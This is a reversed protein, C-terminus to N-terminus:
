TGSAPGARRWRGVFRRPVRTRSDLERAEQGPPQPPRDIQALQRSEFLFHPNSNVPRQVQQERLVEHLKQRHAAGRDGRRFSLGVVLQLGLGDTGIYPSTPPTKLGRQRGPRFARRWPGRYPALSRRRSARSIAGLSVVVVGLSAILIVMQRADLAPEPAVSVVLQIGVFAVVLGLYLPLHAFSWLHLRVRM